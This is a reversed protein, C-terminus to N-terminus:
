KVNQLLYISHLFSVFNEFMKAKAKNVNRLLLGQNNLISPFIFIIIFPSSM